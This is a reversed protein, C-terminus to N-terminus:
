SCILIVEENLFKYLATNETATQNLKILIQSIM